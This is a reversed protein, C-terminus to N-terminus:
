KKIITIDGFLDTNISGSVSAAAAANLTQPGTATPFSGSFTGTAVAPASTFAFRTNVVTGTDHSHFTDRATTAPGTATFNLNISMLVTTNGDSIPVQAVLNAVGLDGRVFVSQVTQVFGNLFLDIGQCHDQYEMDVIVTPMSMPAGNTQIVTGGYIVDILANGSSKFHSTQAAQVASTAMVGSCILALSSALKKM